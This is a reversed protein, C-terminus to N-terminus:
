TTLTAISMQAWAAAYNPDLQIALELKSMGAPGKLRVGQLYAEYAEVNLTGAGRFANVGGVGLRVGLAGSVKKAIEEQMEFINALERDYSNTWIPFGNDTDILQATIKIRNGDKRISGELISDVDLTVENTKGAENSQTFAISSMRGAVRLGDM